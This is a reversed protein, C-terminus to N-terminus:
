NGNLPPKGGPLRAFKHSDLENNFSKNMENLTGNGLRGGSLIKYSKYIISLRFFFGIKVVHQVTEFLFLYVLSMLKM